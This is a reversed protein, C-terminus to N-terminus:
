GHQTIKDPVEMNTDTTRVTGSLLDQVLGRKHRRFQEAYRMNTEIYERQSGLLSAIRRQESISPVPIKMGEVDGVRMHKTTSGVAVRQFWSQMKESYLLELLFDSDLTGNEPRLQITRQGLCLREGEPIKFAEGIPAERTFIVDGPRPEIRRIREKYVEETVYPSEEPNYRGDEIESTLIVRIGSDSYEPTTNICDVVDSCVEDLRLFDWRQPISGIRTEKRMDASLDRFEGTEKIGFELASQRLGDRVTKTQRIIEETKEIARDVTYLVTAIKRQESLSPTPLRLKEMNKRSIRKRTTGSAWAIGQKWIPRSNLVYKLFQRNWDETEQLRAIDVAMVSDRDFSPLLCSRLIPEQMRSILLDGESIVTCNEEKAFEESIFRNPEDKFQGQRIHGLQVLQINGDEDMDASEIWDGDVLGGEKAVEDLTSVKWDRPLTLFGDERLEEDDTSGDQQQETFESLTIDESM